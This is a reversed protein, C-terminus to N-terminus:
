EVGGNLYAVRDAASTKSEHDVIQTGSVKRIM